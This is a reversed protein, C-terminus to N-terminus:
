APKPEILPAGLGAPLDSLTAVGDLLRTKQFSAVLRRLALDVVGRNTAVGTLGRAQEILGHDIDISTMAM